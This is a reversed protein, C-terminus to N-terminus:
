NNLRSAEVPLTLRYGTTAVGFILQPWTPDEELKAQLHRIYLDISDTAGLYDNGWIKKALSSHSVVRGANKMLHYVIDCQTPTLGIRKGKYLLHRAFLDLQLQGCCLPSDERGPKRRRVVTNIRALLELQKFPKVMYDDAGWELGQVIGSEDSRVTLIIIPVSSFLRMRKLVEFGSIDPLGLDLIVVDPAEVRLLEIGQEGLHTSVLRAEPWRIQFALYIAEVIDPADDIILAKM